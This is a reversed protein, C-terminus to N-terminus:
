TEKTRMPTEVLDFRVTKERWSVKGTKTKVQTVRRIYCEILIDGKVFSSQPTAENKKSSSKLAGQKPTPKPATSGQEEDETQASENVIDKPSLISASPNNSEFCAEEPIVSVAAAPAETTQDIPATPDTEM